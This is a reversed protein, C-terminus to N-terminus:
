AGDERGRTRPDDATRYRWEMADDQASHRYGREGTMEAAGNTVVNLM